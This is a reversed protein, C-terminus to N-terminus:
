NGGAGTTEGAYQTRTASLNALVVANDPALEAAAECAEVAGAADGLHHLAICRNTLAAVRVSTRPAGDLAEDTFHLAAQWEGSNLARVAGRIDSDAVRVPTFEAAPASALQLALLAPLLATM